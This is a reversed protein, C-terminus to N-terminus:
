PTTTATTRHQLISERWASPNNRYCTDNASMRAHVALFSWDNANVRGNGDFDLVSVDFEDGNAMMLFEISSLIEVMEKSGPKIGMSLFM